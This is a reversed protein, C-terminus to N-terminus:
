ANDWWYKKEAVASQIPTRKRSRMKALMSCAESYDRALHASCLYAAKATFSLRHWFHPLNM